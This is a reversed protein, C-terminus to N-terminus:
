ENLDEVLQKASEITFNGSIQATGGCIKENIVPATMQEGGVYIAMQQGVLAETLNCFIEKGKENFNIEAVAQGAQSTGVTAFKFFAGNLIENTKPDKATTWEPVNM